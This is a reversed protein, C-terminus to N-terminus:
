SKLDYVGIALRDARSLARKSLFVAAMVAVLWYLLAISLVNSLAQEVLDLFSHNRFIDIPSVRTARVMNILVHFVNGLIGGLLTYLAAAIAFKSAIGRGFYGMAFGIVIGVGAAAFGYTIPWAAVTLGYAVSALVTAVAGVIIAASFNQESLLKEALEYNKQEEEARVTASEKRSLSLVLYDIFPQYCDDGVM